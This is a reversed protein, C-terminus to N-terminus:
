QVSTEKESREAEKLAEELLRRQVIAEGLEQCALKFADELSVQM